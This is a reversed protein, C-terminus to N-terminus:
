NLIVEPGREIEPGVDPGHEIEPGVHCGDVRHCFM